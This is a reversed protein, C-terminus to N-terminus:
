LLRLITSSGLESNRQLHTRRMEEITMEYESRITNIVSEYHSRLSLKDQELQDNRRQLDQVKM